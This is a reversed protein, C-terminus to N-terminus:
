KSFLNWFWTCGELNIGDFIYALINNFCQWYWYYCFFQLSKPCYADIDIEVDIDMDINERMDMDMDMDVDM